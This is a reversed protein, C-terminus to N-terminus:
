GWMHGTARRIEDWTLELQQSTFRPAKFYPAGERAESWFNVLTQTYDERAQLVGERALILYKEWAARLQYRADTEREALAALPSLQRKRWNQAAQLRRNLRKLLKETAEIQDDVAAELGDPDDVNTDLSDRLYQLRAEEVVIGGQVERVLDDYPRCFALYDENTKKVLDEMQRVQDRAAEVPNQNM